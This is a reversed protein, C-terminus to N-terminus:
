DLKLVQGTIEIEAQVASDDAPIRVGPQKGGVSIMFRGPEIVRNYANDILSFQEARIAIEVKKTEGAKLFVRKFAAMSRLPVPATAEKDTVYVQVVEEGDIKGSNTVDVTVKVDNGTTTHAPTQINKYIFTTYSLGFGFGYLPEGKFYRYTRGEMSYDKFPPLDSVSKYFTVPLRGSPAYDGFLLRTLATGTTEGPYFAQVIAPLNQAEWNLAIASGSFNVYIISKGTKQLEKLLDEQVGPLNLHTRDGHSFGDIELPMEEGELDSSIGGCFIVVDAKQAVALAEKHYDRSTEVWTLTASPEIGNSWWFPAVSFTAELSYQRGKELTIAADGTPKGDVKLSVSGGFIYTGSKKPVLMGTWRVSFNDELAHNLPSTYWYFHIDNDIGVIGPTGNHESNSFYEAKLGKKLKGNEVHFFNEKNIVDFNTYIGPVIPCGPTYLVNATGLRERLATLPTVPRIPEGNYNGILITFNDANPGILAVKKVNKLPLIGNNKLLVLSKEAAKLSLELHESSGVVSYPIKTYPVMSDPDFM